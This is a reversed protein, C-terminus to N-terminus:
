FSFRLQLDIRRSSSQSGFFGGALSNSTGFLPSSLNGIPVALNTNNFLNRAFASVTLTYPRNGEAGGGPGGPGRGGGGFGGGGFGGREGGGGFGGREGGGGPGRGGGGQGGRGQGQAGAVEKRKGFGFSKAARLNFSFQSPGNGFNVPVLAHGAVPVVDFNGFRTAKVNAGSAGAAFTPRDNFISDGNLDQGLTINFSAGSNAQLIPSLSFGHPLSWNGGLFLRNRVDFAARGYDLSLNFQDTPFSAAGNANSNAFTLAYFGFLSIKTNVRLNVNTILQNQKFIGESQYEYINGVNGFPRVGSGAVAPNFTGDLPANINRTLFQHVGRSNLYNTTITGYRGLQREISFGTQMTYPARLRPDIRYTTPATATALAALTAPSPVSPFFDPQTVIFQQQTTGNLRQANLIFNQDFRDYFIGYGARLVTKPTSGKKGLGWAFAVRPAFDKHDGISNQTEYRLGYSVTMNPRFKWDDELYLGLDAYTDSVAPSGTTLSFQTAGGGAARIQAGTMGAALGQQTIRFADATTFTFSGNFNQTTFNTDNSVRVRAGFRTFHTGHAISTYNQIEYRGQEAVAHGLPNGGSTFLGIVSVAPTADVSTQENRSRVYQFRTENVIKSGFIQTDSIQAQHETSHLNFAQTPLSQVGIGDNTENSEEFQYRGTITNTPTLQYDIRPGLNTRLRQNPVSQSFPVLNFSNDFVRTNIVSLDDINRREVNFFFSAKKSLPGGLNGSYQETHYEPLNKAFPTSSNLVSNNDNFFLQGHFKDTGPKTFVQIRGYGIRDYEASFPNQNVRIERIASKPPLQGGTFGDIYIQGGNPGASPGALAQLESAFEDPDDSFAELDKEKLVTASSNNASNVDVQNADSNVDVNQKEVLIDLPVDLPLIKGASVNIEQTAPSFGRATASISYKGPALGHIEYQGQGNSTANGTKGDASKVTVNAGPIAAGSPDTVSGRVGGTGTQAELTLSLLLAAVAAFFILKLTSRSNLTM